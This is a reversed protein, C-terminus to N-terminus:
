RGNKLFFLLPLDDDAVQSQYTQNSLTIVIIKATQLKRNEDDSGKVTLKDELIKIHTYLM